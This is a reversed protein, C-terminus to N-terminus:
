ELMKEYLDTHMKSERFGLSLLYKRHENNGTGTFVVRFGEKRYEKFKTKFHNLGILYGRLEPVVYDLEIHLEEGKGQTILIGKLEREIVLLHVDSMNIGEMDFDPFLDAIDDEVESFYGRFLPAQYDVRSYKFKIMAM